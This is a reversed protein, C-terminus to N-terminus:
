EKRLTNLESELNEIQKKLQRNESQLEKLANESAESSLLADIKEHQLDFNIHNLTDIEDQLSDAKKKANFYEDALNLYVLLNRNELSQYQYGEMAKVEELKNNLFNAVKQIYEETEYGGLCYVKGGILVEVTNKESM